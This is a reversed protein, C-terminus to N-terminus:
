DEGYDTDPYSPPNSFRDMYFKELVRDSDARNNNITDISIGHVVPTPLDEQQAKADLDEALSAYNDAKQSYKLSVSEVTIDALRAFSSQVAKAAEAAATYINTNEFLFFYIQADTLLYDTSDTDGLLIRIREKDMINQITPVLFADVRVTSINASSDTVKIKYLYSGSLSTTDTDAIAVSIAGTSANTITATKSFQEVSSSDYVIFTVTAGTLDLDSGASDDISATITADDGQPVILENSM